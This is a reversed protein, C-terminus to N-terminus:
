LQLFDNWGVNIADDFSLSAAVTMWSDVPKILVFPARASKM